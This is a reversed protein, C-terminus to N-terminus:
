YAIALIMNVTWHDLDSANQGNNQYVADVSAFLSTESFFPLIAFINHLYDNILPTAVYRVPLPLAHSAPISHVTSASLVLRAFSITSTFGYFDRTTANVSRSKM